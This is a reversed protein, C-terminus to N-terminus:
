PDPLVTLEGTLDGLPTQPLAGASISNTCKRRLIQSRTVVIKVIKRVILYSFKMIYKSVKNMCFNSIHFYDIVSQTITNTNQEMKVFFIV